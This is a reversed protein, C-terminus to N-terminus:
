LVVEVVCQCLKWMCSGVRHHRQVHSQGPEVIHCSQQLWPGRPSTSSRSRTTKRHQATCLATHAARWAKHCCGYDEQLRHCGEDTMQCASVELSELQQLHQQLAATSSCHQQQQLATATPAATQKKRNTARENAMQCASMELSEDHHHQM